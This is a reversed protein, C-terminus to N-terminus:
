IIKVNRNKVYISIYKANKKNRIPFLVNIDLLERIRRDSIPYEVKFKDDSYLIPFEKYLYYGKKRKNYKIYGNNDIIDLVVKKNEKSLDDFIIDTFM